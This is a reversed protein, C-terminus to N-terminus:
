GQLTPLFPNGTFALELAHLASQGQKKATSIYGRIRCFMAAGHTTRFCGPVKQQVKVMRVDREAQNNDFPVRFDHMFRLVEHRRKDLRDLLNKGKTQKPRGAKGTRQPPPNAAIGEEILEQYRQQYRGLTEAGLSSDGAEKAAEVEQSIDLLLVRMKGAWEQKHQEEIFTLERLHHANCLAHECGYERYGYLGDHVAVGGFEPLIGIQKGAESGRKSRAAYHTPTETCAVHLWWKKGAIDVGTEDFHGVSAQRVLAKIGEETDALREFCDELTTYLTGTSPSGGFLDTLLETTRWYPLLQYQMLYVGLSKIRHGYGVATDVGPPFGTRTSHGCSPCRKCEACHEVVGLRLRPLDTVQRKERAYAEVGDLSKGCGECKQPTHMVVEDPEEIWVLTKGPHGKQGGPKNGSKQRLSKPKPSIPGSSPPKSSNRSNKGLREELEKVREGLAAIQGQQEELRAFLAQVLGVVAEPGQEYVALIAEREM